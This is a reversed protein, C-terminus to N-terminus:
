DLLSARGGREGEFGAVLRERGGVLWMKWREEVDQVELEGGVVMGEREETRRRTAAAPTEVTEAVKACPVIL